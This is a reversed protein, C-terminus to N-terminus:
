VMAVNKPLGFNPKATLTEKNIVISNAAVKPLKIGRTRAFYLISGANAVPGKTVVKFSM